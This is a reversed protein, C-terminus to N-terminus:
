ASPHPRHPQGTVFPTPPEGTPLPSLDDVPIYIDSAVVVKIGNQYGTAVVKTAYCKKFVLWEKKYGIIESLRLADELNLCFHYGSLYRIGTEECNFFLGANRDNEWCGEHGEGWGVCAPSIKRCSGVGSARFFKYMPIADTGEPTKEKDPLDFTELKDLCV